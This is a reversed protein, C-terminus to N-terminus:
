IGQELQQIQGSVLSSMQNRSSSEMILKLTQAQLNRLEVVQREMALNLQQNSELVADQFKSLSLQFNNNNAEADALVKQQQIDIKAAREEVKSMVDAIMAESKKVEARSQNIVAQEVPSPPANKTEERAQTVKQMEEQTLQDDPIVGEKIMQARKRAAVQDIGPASINNLLVDGGLGMITPDYQAIDTIARVAQQQKNQFAPGIDCVVDYTGQGLKNLEVETGTQEDIIVTNLQVMEITGDKGILRQTRRTDYVRPIAKVIVRATHVLATKMSTFYKFTGNDGKNQVNEIAVGSQLGPNDGVNASFMGMTKNIDERADLATAQLGQNITAGGQEFPPNVGDIHTYFQVPEANVNLTKLTETHGKAQEKTMWYKSRPALAGEEIQRSKAYNYVRQPDMAKEIASRYIVKNESIKHNAYIPIVPIYSFVTEQPKELWGKGDFKRSYVVKVERVRTRVETIGAAALEERVTEFEEDAEYVENNSMLVLTRRKMEVYLLEGIAIYDKKYTYVASNNADSLSEKSGNPYTEEYEECGMIELIVCWKADSKSPEEANPDFWVRDIFNNIRRVLIDQDFADDDIWDTVVRWGAIGVERSRAGAEDYIARAESVNEINRIMGGYTRAVLKTADGGAPLVDIDFDAREIEGTIQDLIPNCQDFTYRPRNELTTWVSVEWQGDRKNIFHDAERGMARNDSEIEQAKSLLEVVLKHDKFDVM